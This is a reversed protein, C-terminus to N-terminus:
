NLGIWNARVDVVTDLYKPCSTMVTYYCYASARGKVTALQDGELSALGTWQPIELVDAILPG